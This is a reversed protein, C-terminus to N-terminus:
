CTGASRRVFTSFAPFGSRKESMPAHQTLSAALTVCAAPCMELPQRVYPYERGNSWVVPEDLLEVEYTAVHIAAVDVHRAEALGPPTAYNSVIIDTHNLDWDGNSLFARRGSAGEFAPFRGSQILEEVETGTVAQSGETSNWKALAAAAMGFAISWVADYMNLSYDHAYTTSAIEASFEDMSIYSDGAYHRCLEPPM